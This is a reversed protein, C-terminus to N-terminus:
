TQFYVGCNNKHGIEVKLFALLSITTRFISMDVRIEPTGGRSYFGAQNGKNIGLGTELGQM